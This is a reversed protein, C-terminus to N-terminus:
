GSLGEDLYAATGREIASLAAELRKALYPNLLAYAETPPLFRYEDLESTRLAIRAIAAEDLMGGDFLFHLSETKEEHRPLFEVAAFRLDTIELGVEELAERRAGVLPSEGAETVGGPLLWYDRYNPKVVLVEGRANRLIVGASVRKKPLSAYYAEPSLREAQPDSM